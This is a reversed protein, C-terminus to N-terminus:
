LVKVILWIAGTQMSGLQKCLRAADLFTLLWVGRRVPLINTKKKLLLKILIWLQCKFDGCEFLSNGTNHHAHQVICHLALTNVSINEDNKYEIETSNCFLLLFYKNVILSVEGMVVINNEARINCLTFLHVQLLFGQISGAKLYWLSVLQSNPSCRDPCGAWTACLLKRQM